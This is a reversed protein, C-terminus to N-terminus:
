KKLSERLQIGVFYGPELLSLSIRRRKRVNEIITVNPLKVDYNHLSPFSIYCFTYQVHLSSTLAVRKGFERGSEVRQV